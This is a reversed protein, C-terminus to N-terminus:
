YNEVRIKKSIDLAITEILSSKEFAYILLYKEKRVPKILKKYEDQELLFVPDLVNTVEKVGVNELLIKASEERVSIKSFDKIYQKIDELENIDIDTKGISSAFSIKKKKGSIFQLFFHLTM